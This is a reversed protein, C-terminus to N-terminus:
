RGKKPKAAGSYMATPFDVNVQSKELGKRCDHPPTDNPKGTVTVWYILKGGQIVSIETGFSFTREATQLKKLDKKLAKLVAGPPQVGAFVLGGSQRPPKSIEKWHWLKAVRMAALSPMLTTIKKAESNKFNESAPPKVQAFLSVSLVVVGVFLM